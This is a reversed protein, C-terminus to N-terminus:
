DMEELSEEGYSRELWEGGEEEGFYREVLEDLELDLDRRVLDEDTFDREVLDDWDELERRFVNNAKAHGQVVTKGAQRVSASILPRFIMGLRGFAGREALDAYDEGVLEREVLDSELDRGVVNNAKAHGQLATKGAQRVGQSIFPRLIMGLRGFAGREVLEQFEEDSFDRGILDEVEEDGFSREFRDEMDLDVERRAVQNAKAHGQITTKAAQRVSQSILPRFIMGLRGFAGREVLDSAQEAVDIPQANAIAVSTLAALSLATVSLRVM